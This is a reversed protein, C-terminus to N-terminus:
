KKKGKKKKGGAMQIKQYRTEYLGSENYGARRILAMDAVAGEKGAGAEAAPSSSARMPAGGGAARSEFCNFQVYYTGLGVMCMDNGKTSVVSKVEKKKEEKKPAAAEMSASDPRRLFGGFETPDESGSEYSEIQGIFDEVSFEGNSDGLEKYMNQAKKGIDKAKSFEALSLRAGAIILTCFALDSKNDLTKLISEAEEAWKLTSKPEGMMLHCNGMTYLLTAQEDKLNLDRAITLAERCVRIADRPEQGTMDDSIVGSFSAVGWKAIHANAILLACKIQMQKEGTLKFAAMGESASHLASSGQGRNEFLQAASMWATGERRLDQVEHALDGAYKFAQLALEEQGVALYVNGQILQVGAEGRKDSVNQFYKTIDDMDSFALATQTLAMQCRVSIDLADLVGQTSLVQQFLESAETAAVLAKAPDGNEMHATALQKKALAEGKKDDIDKYADAAKQALESAEEFKKEQLMVGVLKRMASAAPRAKSSAEFKKLADTAETRAKALDGSLLHANIMVTLLNDQTKQRLRQDSAGEALPLAEKAKALAESAQEQALHIEAIKCTAAGELGKNKLEQAIALADNAM